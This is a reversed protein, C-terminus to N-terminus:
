PVFLIGVPNSAYDIPSLTIWAFDFTIGIVAPDTIVPANFAASADGSGDLVGLFNTFTPTNVNILAFNTLFDWNLPLVVSGIPTGPQTGSASAAVLYSRGALSADGDLSLTIAGGKSAEIYIESASLAAPDPDAQTGVHLDDINWGGMVGNSDTTLTFRLKVDPNNDAYASIDVTHLEWAEDILDASAPNTYVTNGNVKIRAQDKTSREVTLWRRYSLTVGTQGTCDISPSELWNDVNSQYNGNYGSPGLDNGWVKAGSWAFAPDYGGNGTPVNRMWDDQGTGGHTWGNDNIEFDDAFIDNFYGVYFEFYEAGLGDPLRETNGQDDEAELYYKVPGAASVGPISSLYGSGSGTYVMEKSLFGGGTDYHLTAKTVKTGILSSVDAEVPYPGSGDATDPLSTHVIELDV